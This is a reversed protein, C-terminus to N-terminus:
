SCYCYEFFFTSWVSLVCMGSPKLPMCLFVIRICKLRYLRQHFRFTPILLTRSCTVGLIWDPGEGHTMKSKRGGHKRDREVTFGDVKPLLMYYIAIFLSESCNFAILFLVGRGWSPYGTFVIRCLHCLPHSCISLYNCRPSLQHKHVHALFISNLCSFVQSFTFSLHRIAAWVPVFLFAVAYALLILCRGFIQM